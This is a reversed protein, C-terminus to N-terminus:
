ADRISREDDVILINLFNAGEIQPVAALPAEAVTM